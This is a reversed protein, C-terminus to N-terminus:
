ETFIKDTQRDTIRCFAKSSISTKMRTKIDNIAGRVRLAMDKRLVELRPDFVHRKTQKNTEMVRDWCFDHKTKCILILLINNKLGLTLYSSKIQYNKSVKFETLRRAVCGLNACRLVQLVYGIILSSYGLCFYYVYSSQM